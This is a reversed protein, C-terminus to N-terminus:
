QTSILNKQWIDKLSKLWSLIVQLIYCCYSTSPSWNIYQARAAWNKVFIGKIECINRGSVIFDIESDDLLFLDLRTKIVVLGHAIYGLQNHLRDSFNFSDSEVRTQNFFSIVLFIYFGQEWFIRSPDCFQLLSICEHIKQIKCPIKQQFPVCNFWQIQRYYTEFSM